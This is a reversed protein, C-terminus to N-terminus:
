EMHSFKGLCSCQEDSKEGKEKGDGKCCGRPTGGLLYTCYTVEGRPM